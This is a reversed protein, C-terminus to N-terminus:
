KCEKSVMVDSTTVINNEEDSEIISNESDVYITIPADRFPLTTYIDIPINKTENHEFTDNIIKDTIFTENEDYHRNNNKDYFISIKFTNTIPYISNNKVMLVLTGNTDFTFPNCYTKNTLNEISIDTEFNATNNPLLLFEIGIYEIDKPLHIPIIKTKYSEKSLTLNVDYSKINKIVLTGNEDTETNINDLTGVLKVTTNKLVLGTVMDKVVAKISANNEGFIINIPALAPSVNLSSDGVSVEFAVDEYGVKSYRLTADGSEVPSLVYYGKDDTFVTINTDGMYEVKVYALPESGNSDLVTGFISLNTDNSSLSPSFILIAGESANVDAVKTGYGYKIAEIHLIGAPIDRIEYSGNNDTTAQKTGVKINVGAIPTNSVADTVVGRVIVGTDAPSLAELVVDGYDIVGTHTVTFAASVTRYGAKSIVIKYDGAGLKSFNFTGNTNTQFTSDKAGSLAIIVNSLPMSTNGDIVRGQIKAETTFDISDLLVNYHMITNAPISITQQKRIYGAKSVVVTHNGAEVSDFIYSGNGDTQVERNDLMVKVGSLQVTTKRDKIMGKLISITANIDRSLRLIGLDVDEGVMKLTTHLPAYNDSLVDLTYTGNRLGSFSFLGDNKTTVNAEDTFSITIDSLAVGTDGDVVLGSLKALDPNPVEKDALSLAQLVLATTYVDEEWSGTPQQLGKLYDITAQLNTKDYELPALSRLVLASLYTEDAYSGDANKQTLLYSKALDIQTQVTYSKRHLWLARLALASTYLKDGKNDQWSGDPAQKALLYDIAKQIQSDHTSGIFLAELAVTTDLVNSEYGKSHGFGGDENQLSLLTAVKNSTTEGVLGYTTVYSSIYETTNEDKTEVFPNLIMQRDLMVIDDLLSFASATEKASQFSLAIANSSVNHEEILAGANVESSLWNKANDVENAYSSSSLIVFLFTVWLSRFYMSMYRM